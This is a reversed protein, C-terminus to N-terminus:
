LVASQKTGCQDPCIVKRDSLSRLLSSHAQLLPGEEERSAFHIRVLYFDDRRSTERPEWREFSITATPMQQTRSFLSSSAVSTVAWGFSEELKLIKLGMISRIFPLANSLKSTSVFQGESTTALHTEFFFHPTSDGKVALTGRGTLRSEESYGSNVTFPSKDLCFDESRYRMTYQHPFSHQPDEIPNLPPDYELLQLSNERLLHTATDLSRLTYTRGTSSKNIHSFAFGQQALSAEVWEVVDEKKASGDVYAILDSKQAHSQCVSPKQKIAFLILVISIM